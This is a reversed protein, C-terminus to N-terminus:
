LLKALLMTLAIGAAMSSKAKLGDVESVVRSQFDEMDTQMTILTSPLAMVDRVASTMMDDNPVWAAYDYSFEPDLVKCTGEMLTLTRALYIFDTGFKVVRKQSDTFEPAKKLEEHVDKGDLVRRVIRRITPRKGPEVRLVGIDELAVLVGEANRSIGSQLMRAMARGLDVNVVLMAGFDYLVVKGGRLFGINGPHPDAHVLGAQLMLMYLDMLREALPRNPTVVQNLKMSPEYETIMTDENAWIVNPVVLWPVDRFERAFRRSATAEKVFDLEGLVMDQTEAILELMNQAGPVNGSAALSMTFKLLPLDQSIREKVGTRRRKIAVMKGDVTRRGKYVDAISASAIPTSEIVYGDIVPPSRTEDIPVKDQVVSLADVFEADLADKRASIFQAMKVYLPGM